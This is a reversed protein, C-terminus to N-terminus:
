TLDLLTFPYRKYVLDQVGGPTEVRGWRGENSFMITPSGVGEIELKFDIMPDEDVIGIYEDFDALDKILMGTVTRSRPVMDRTSGDNVNPLRELNNNVEYRWSQWTTEEVFGLGDEDLYFDTDSWPIASGSPNAFSAGALVEVAVAWVEITANVAEGARCEVSQTNFRVTTFTLGIDVNMNYRIHMFAISSEGNQYSSLFTEDTVILDFSIVPERMGLIIDYLGRRGGGRVNINNPNLSPNIRQVFGRFTTVGTKTASTHLEAQFGGAILSM